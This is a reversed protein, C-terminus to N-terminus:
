LSAGGTMQPEIPLEPRACGDVGCLVNQNVYSARSNAPNSPQNASKKKQM